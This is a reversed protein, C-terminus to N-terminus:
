VGLFGHIMLHLCYLICDELKLTRQQLSDLVLALEGGRACEKRLTIVLIHHGFASYGANTPVREAGIRQGSFPGPFSAVPDRELLVLDIVELLCVLVARSAAQYITSGKSCSQLLLPRRIQVAPSTDTSSHIPGDFAISPAPTRLDEKFVESEFLVFLDTEQASSFFSASPLFRQSTLSNFPSSTPWSDYLYTDASAQAIAKLWAASATADPFHSADSAPLFNEETRAPQRERAKGPSTASSLSGMGIDVRSCPITHQPSKLRIKLYEVHVLLISISILTKEVRGISRIRLKHLKTTTALDEQDNQEEKANATIRDKRKYSSERKRSRSTSM